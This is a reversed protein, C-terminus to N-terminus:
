VPYEFVKIRMQRAAIVEPVTSRVADAGADKDRHLRMVLGKIFLM